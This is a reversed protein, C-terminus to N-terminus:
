RKAGKYTKGNVIYSVTSKAIGYKIMLKSYPIGAEHDALLDRMQAATLKRTSRAAHRARKIRVSRPQDMMNDSQTGIRINAFTNNDPNDDKHRVVVNSALAKRGYKLFAVFQHVRVPKNEGNVIITFYAYRGGGKSTALKKGTKSFIEGDQDATYGRLKAIMCRQRAKSIGM